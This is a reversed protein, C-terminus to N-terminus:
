LPRLLLFTWSNFLSEVVLYHAINSQKLEVALLEIEIRRFGQQPAHTHTETDNITDMVSVTRDIRRLMM